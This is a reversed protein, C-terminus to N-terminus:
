LVRRYFNDESQQQPLQSEFSAYQLIMLLGVRMM